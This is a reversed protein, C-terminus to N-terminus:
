EILEDIIINNNELIEHIEKYVEDITDDSDMDECRNILNKKTNYVIQFLANAMDTSKIARKLGMMDDPEECDFILKAKM